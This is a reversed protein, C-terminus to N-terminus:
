FEKSYIEYVCTIAGWDEAGNGAAVQENYDDVNEIMCLFSLNYGEIVRVVENVLWLFENERIPNVSISFVMYTTNDPQPEAEHIEVIYDENDVNKRDGYDRILSSDVMVNDLQELESIKSIVKEELQNM